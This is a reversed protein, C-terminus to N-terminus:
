KIRYFDNLTKKLMDFINKIEIYDDRQMELLTYNEQHPHYFPYRVGDHIGTFRINHLIQTNIQYDLQNKLNIDNGAVIELLFNISKDLSHGTDRLMKAFRKNSINIKQCIIHKIYKETSQILHYVAQNYLGNRALLEAADYDKQSVSLFTDAMDASDNIFKRKGFFKKTM